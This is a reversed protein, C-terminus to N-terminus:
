EQTKKQWLTAYKEGLDYCGTIQIPDNKLQLLKQKLEKPTKPAKIQLKDSM